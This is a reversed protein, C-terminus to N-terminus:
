GNAGMRGFKWATVVGFTYTVAFGVLASVYGITQENWGAICSGPIVYGFGIVISPVLHSALIAVLVLVRFTMSRAPAAPASTPIAPEQIPRHM